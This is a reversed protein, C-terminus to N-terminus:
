VTMGASAPIWYDFRGKLACHALNRVRRVTKVKLNGRSRYPRAQARSIRPTRM